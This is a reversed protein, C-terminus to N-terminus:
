GSAEARRKIVRLMLIRILGSFPRIVLWYLAFKRRAGRDEVHVRTVTSVRTSGNQPELRFNMVAKCSEPRAYAAFEEASAFRPEYAGRLKWFQGALGVVLEDGPRDEVVLAGAERGLHQVLPRAPGRGARGFRRIMWLARAVPIDRLSLERIVRDVQAPPAAVVIEHREDFEWEPLWADIASV